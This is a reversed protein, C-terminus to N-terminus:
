YKMGIMTLINPLLRNFSLGPLRRSGKPRLRQPAFRFRRPPTAM